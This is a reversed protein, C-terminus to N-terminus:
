KRVRLNTLGALIIRSQFLNIQLDTRLFDLQVELPLDALSRLAVKDTVGANLFSPLLHDLPQVLSQLFVKVANEDPVIEPAGSASVPLTTEALTTDTKDVIPGGTLEVGHQVSPAAQSTPPKPPEHFNQSLYPSPQVPPSPPRVLLSPSSGQGAQSSTAPGPSSQSCGHQPM